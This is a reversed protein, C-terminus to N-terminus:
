RAATDTSEIPRAAPRQAQSPLDRALNRGPLACSSLACFVRPTHCSLTTSVSLACRKHTHATKSLSAAHVARSHSPLEHILKLVSSDLLSQSVNRTLALDGTLTKPCLGYPLARKATGTLGNSFLLQLAVNQFLLAAGRCAHPLCPELTCSSSGLRSELFSQAPLLRSRRANALKTQLACLGGPLKTKLACLQSSVEAKLGRLKSQRANLSTKTRLLLRSTKTLPDRAETLLHSAQTL